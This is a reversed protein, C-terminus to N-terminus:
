RSPPAEARREAPHQGAPDTLALFAAEVAPIGEAGHMLEIEGRQGHRIGHAMLKLRVDGAQRIAEDAMIIAGAHHRTMLRVFRADFTPGEARSASAMEDPSLMGPMSAMEDPSCIESAPGFWSAWWQRFIEAEGKQSAAILRALARLHPDVARETGIRALEIGQAHHAMMQRMFRQDYAENPGRHALERGQSGLLALLGVGLVGLVALGSWVAAFRAHPSPRHAVRDRLWPFLPYMSASTVHVLLGIWYPQELTFIPQWFPLLPVLVFWELASTFLAWFPAIALLTWPRLRGTWRGLLGFFVVAWSFDAWQHFLIGALIVPLSPDVQLVPDRLPIVAVAMWDVVSDRGIRPGTFHSILTSFTSSILGLLAAALWRDRDIWSRIRTLGM